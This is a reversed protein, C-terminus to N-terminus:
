GVGAYVLAAEATSSHNAPLFDSGVNYTHGNLAAQTQDRNVKTRRLPIHQFYTGDDGGPKIGWRKLNDAIYQATEDLGPSPTDRGDMKDSAVYYLRESLRAATIVDAAKVEKAPLAPAHATQTQALTTSLLLLAILWLSLLNSRRM